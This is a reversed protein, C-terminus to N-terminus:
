ADLTEEAEYAREVMKVVKHVKNKMRTMESEHHKLTSDNAHVAKLLKRASLVKGKMMLHDFQTQLKGTDLAMTSWERGLRRINTYILELLRTHKIVQKSTGPWLKRTLMYAEKSNEAYGKFSKIKQKRRKGWDEADMEPWGNTPLKANANLLDAMVKDVIGTAQKFRLKQYHQVAKKTNPGFNGDAKLKPRAKAHVLLEQLIEVEAGSSGKKLSEKFVLKKM